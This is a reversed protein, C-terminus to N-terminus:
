KNFFWLRVATFGLLLAFSKRLLTESISVSIKSGFFAGVFLGLAIFLGFKVNDISILGSQYYQLVGLLGVPLLLAVLSTGSAAHQTFGLWVLAPVIILGGGIGFLGSLVGAATGILLMYFITM